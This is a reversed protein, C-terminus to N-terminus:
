FDGGHQDAPPRGAQPVARLRVLGSELGDSPGGDGRLGTGQDGARGVPGGVTFGVLPAEGRPRRKSRCGGRCRWVSRLGKELGWLKRAGILCGSGTAMGGAEPRGPARKRHAYRRDQCKASRRLRGLRRGIRLRDMQGEHCGGRPDQPSLESRPSVTAGPHQGGVGSVVAPCGVNPPTRTKPFPPTRGLARETRPLCPCSAAVGGARASFLGTLPPWCLLGSRSPWSSRGISGRGRRRSPRPGGCPMACPTRIRPRSPRGTAASSGLCFSIPAGTPRLGGSTTPRPIANSSSRTSESPSSRSRPLWFLSCSCRPGAGVAASKFGPASIM